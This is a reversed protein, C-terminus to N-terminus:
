GLPERYPDKGDQYRYDPLPVKPQAPSANPQEVHPVSYATEGKEVMPLNTPAIEPVSSASTSPKQKELEEIKLAIIKFIKENTAEAIATATEEDIQTERMLNGIYDDPNEFGYIIFMTEREVTETQELSMKNLLAIEKVSSKWPVANIAQQLNTSLTKFQEEILKDTENM